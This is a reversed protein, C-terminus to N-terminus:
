PASRASRGAAVPLDVWATLDPLLQPHMGEIAVVAVMTRVTESFQSTTALPALSEVRGDFALDPFGDLGIRASQGVHVHDADAQNVRARVRMRSTDVIDIVPTGPRVEDGEAIEVFQGNRFVRKMVVLGAFPARVLMLQANGEAYQLARQARALRIELIRRDARAAERRLDFTTVLQAHRARAQDLALRNKEADIAAILENSRVDLEARQVDHEAAKLETLDKAETATQEADKKAIESTINAVESRRDFADREQQQRDFEVLPDGPEVETGAKILGVILLPTAPGQLRPVSVATSQVAEVAGTLRVSLPAVDIPAARDIAPSGNSCGALCSVAIVGNPAVRVFWAVGRALCASVQPVRTM